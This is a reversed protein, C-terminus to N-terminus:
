SPLLRSLLGQFHSEIRLFLMHKQRESSSRGMVWPSETLNTVKFSEPDSAKVAGSFAAVIHCRGGEARTQKGPHGTPFDGGPVTSINSGFVVFYLYLRLVVVHLFGLKRVQNGTGSLHQISIGSNRPDVPLNGNSITIEVQVPTQPRRFGRFGGAWHKTNECTKRCLPSTANKRNESSGLFPTRKASSPGAGASVSEPQQRLNPAALTWGAGERFDGKVNKLPTGYYCKVFDLVRHRPNTEFYHFSTTPIPLDFLIPGTKIM